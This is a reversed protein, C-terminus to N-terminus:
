PMGPLTMGPPLKMGPPLGPIGGPMGGGGAPRDEKIFNQPVQDMLNSVAFTPILVVWDNDSRKLYRNGAEVSGLTYTFTENGKKLIVQAALPTDLGYEPKITKGVPRDIILKRAAGVFATVREPDAPTGPPLEALTWNGEVKNLTLTGRPNKVIIQEPATVDLYTTDIYPAATENLADVSFGRSLYVQEEGNRRVHAASGRAAGVVLNLTADGATLTVKRAYTREGVDLANHNSANSAIPARIRGAFLATLVKQVKKGDAPYDDAGPLVWKGDKKTLEVVEAPKKNAPAAEIRLASVADAELTEILARADTHPASGRTGWTFAVLGVQAILVVGLIKNLTSNM